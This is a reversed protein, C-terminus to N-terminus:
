NLESIFRSPINRHKDNPGYKESSFIFLREKTRTIAVYFIRREEELEAGHKKGPMLEDRADVIFVVKAELGKAQHITMLQVQDNLDQPKETMLLENLVEDFTFINGMKELMMQKLASINAERRKLDYYSSSFKSVEIVKVVEDFFEELSCTKACATLTEILNIFQNLKAINLMKSAEFYSINKTKSVLRVKAMIVDAIGRAPINVVSTFADNDDHNLVLRCYGLIYKIERYELFGIGYLYHPIGHQSLVRDYVGKSQDQRYLVAFDKYKYGKTKRLEKIWYAVLNAADTVYKPNKFVLDVGEDNLSVLDVNFSNSNNAILKNAYNVIKKTSRHNITLHLVLANYEEVYKELIKINSGRFSYICQNSDGVMFLHQSKTTLYRLIKYQINNIDQAEDVLVFAFENAVEIRFDTDSELLRLFELNMGDYDIKHNDRLYDEYLYYVEIIKLKKYFIKEKIELENKIRSIELIVEDLKLVDDYKLELIINKLIERKMGDSVVQMKFENYAKLHDYTYKHFTSIGVKHEQGLKTALRRKMERTAKNTFTFAQIQNELLGNVQIEHIIKEILVTTKGSGPGAVLLTYPANSTIATQQELTLTEM